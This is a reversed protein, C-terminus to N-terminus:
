KNNFDRLRIRTLVRKTDLPFDADIVWNYYKPDNRLVEEVVMGKYKGFNFIEQGNSNRIIRGAYDVSRKPTTTFKALAAIDNKLDPYRDLQAKLVEYTARADAQASHADALESGCYFKYAASLTRPEKKHFVAQVDVMKAKSFDVDVDARLLEEVLIPLDYHSSNYGSLDCGEFAAAIKKAVDKFKPCDKLDDDSIGHIAYADAPMKMEPNIRITESEERGDPYIKLWSIEVIRDHVIDLGTAELDFFIIPNTLNLKM